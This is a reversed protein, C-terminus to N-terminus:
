ATARGSSGGKPASGPRRGPSMWPARRRQYLLARPQLGGRCIRPREDVDQFDNPRRPGRHMEGPRDRGHNRGSRIHPIVRDTRRRLLTPDSFRLPRRCPVAPHVGALYRERDPGLQRHHQHCNWLVQRHPIMAGKPRGTTGSTYLIAYTDDEELLPRIPEDAAARALGAEYTDAGPIEAGEVALIHPVDIHARMEALLGTFEPGCLLVKPECDNVIYELERAVLRWNLPAFIAGIKALGYFLDTYIVSNHALISVRDGKRVGYSDHLLNAAQNARTNLDAYTYRNGTALEVLAVRNPTLYARRSLLDSSDM